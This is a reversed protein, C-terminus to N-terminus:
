KISNHTISLKGHHTEDGEVRIGNILNRMQCMSIDVDLPGKNRRLTLNVAQHCNQVLLHELRITSDEYDSLRLDISTQLLPWDTNTIHTTGEIANEIEVKDM